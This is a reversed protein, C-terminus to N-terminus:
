PCAFSCLLQWLSQAPSRQQPSVGSPHPMSFPTVCLLSTSMLFTPNPFWRWVEEQDKGRAVGKSPLYSMLSEMQQTDPVGEPVDTLDCSVWGRQDRSAPTSRDLHKTPFWSRQSIIPWTGWRIMMEVSPGGKLSAEGPSMVLHKQKLRCGPGVPSSGTSPDPSDAAGVQLRAVTSGQVCTEQSAFEARGQPSISAFTAEMVLWVRRPREKSIASAAM